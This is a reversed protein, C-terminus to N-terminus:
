GKEYYRVKADYKADEKAYFHPCDEEWEEEYEPDTCESHNIDSEYYYEACNWCTNV